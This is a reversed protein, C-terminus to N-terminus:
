YGIITRIKGLMNDFGPFAQQASRGQPLCSYLHLHLITSHHHKTNEPNRDIIPKENFVM